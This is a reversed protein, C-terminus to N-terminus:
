YGYRENILSMKTWDVTEGHPYTAFKMGMSDKFVYVDRGKFKRKREFTMQETEFSGDKNEAYVVEYKEGVKMKEPFWRKPQEYSVTDAALNIENQKQKFAKEEERWDYDSGYGFKENIEEEFDWDIKGNPYETTVHAYGEPTNYLDIRKGKYMRSAKYTMEESDYSGDAFEGFVVPYKRGVEKGKPINVEPKNESVGNEPSNGPLLGFQNKMQSDVAAQAEEMSDYHSDSGGFPCRGKEAKCIHPLGKPTIHYKAM